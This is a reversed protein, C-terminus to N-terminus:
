LALSIDHVGTAANNSMKLFSRDAKMLLMKNGHRVAPAKGQRILYKMDYLVDRIDFSQSPLKLAVDYAQCEIKQILVASGDGSDFLLRDGYMVLIGYADILRILFFYHHGDNNLELLHDFGAAFVPILGMRKSSHCSAGFIQPSSHPILNQM